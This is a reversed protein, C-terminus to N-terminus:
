GAARIGYLNFVTGVQFTNAGGTGCTISTIANNNRWLGVSAKSETGGGASRTLVTKNTTSNSYNQIESITTTRSTLFSGNYMYAVGSNRASGVNAGNPYIETNSYLSTTDGNFRLTFYSGASCTGNVILVLDTYAGSITSFTYSAQATSVTFNEIPIYTSASGTSYTVGM